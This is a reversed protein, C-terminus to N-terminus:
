LNSFQICRRFGCVPHVHSFGKKAWRADTATPGVPIAQLEVAPLCRRLEYQNRQKWRRACNEFACGCSFKNGAYDVLGPKTVM